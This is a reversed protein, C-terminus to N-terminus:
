AFSEAGDGEDEGPADALAYVAAPRGGKASSPPQAETVEGRGTLTELAARVQDRAVAGKLQAGLEDRKMSGQDKLVERVAQMAEEMKKRNRGITAQRRETATRPPPNGPILQVDFPNAAGRAIFLRETAPQGISYKQVSLVSVRRDAYQEPTITDPSDEPPTSVPHLNLVGRANDAWATGGRAAYQDDMKERAAAQSIHHVVGVAAGGLGRSIAWLAAMLAAAGDNVFREGPGFYVAPDLIVLSPRIGRFRDIITAVAETQRLNQGQDAEVLRLAPGQATGDELYLGDAVAQQEAPTLGMAAVIRSVRYQLMGLDDEGSLIVVPGPRAVDRGFVKRGLIVHIALKLMFTSKGVGGQGAILFPARPIIGEILPQPPRPPKRLPSLGIPKGSLKLRPRAPAQRAIPAAEEETLEPFQQAADMRWGKGGAATDNAMGIVTAITVGEGKNKERLSGWTVRNGGADYGAHNGSWEDWVKPIWDPEGAKLWFDHLGMSVKLWDEYEDGTGPPLADLLERLANEAAKPDRQALAELTGAAPAGSATASPRSQGGRQGGGPGALQKRVADKLDTAGAPAGATASPKSEGGRQGGSPGALQKRAADKLATAKTATPLDDAGRGGGTWPRGTITFYRKGNAFHGVGKTEKMGFATDADERLALGRLGCGSPSVELYVRDGFQEILPTAPHGAVLQGQADLVNDFDLGVLASGKRPLYGIGHGKLQGGNAKRIRGLAEIAEDLTMLAADNAGCKRRTRPDIPVKDRHILWNRDGAAVEFVKRWEAVRLQRFPPGANAAPAPEILEDAAGPAATGGGRGEVGASPAKGTEAASLAEQAASLLEAAGDGGKRAEGTEAASLAEQATGGEDEFEPRPAFKRRFEPDDAYGGSSFGHDRM